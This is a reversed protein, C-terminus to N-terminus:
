RASAIAAGRMARDVQEWGRRYSALQDETWGAVQLDALRGDLPTRVPVSLPPVCRPDAQSVSAGLAGEVYARVEDRTARRRGGTIARRQDESVELTMAVKM